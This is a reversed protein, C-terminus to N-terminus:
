QLEKCSEFKNKGGINRIYRIMLCCICTLNCSFTHLYAEKIIFWFASSLGGYVSHFPYNGLFMTCEVSWITNMKEERFCLYMSFKISYSCYLGYPLKKLLFIHIYKTKIKLIRNKKLENIWIYMCQKPCKEGKGGDGGEGGGGRV